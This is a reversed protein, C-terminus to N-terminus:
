FDMWTDIAENIYKKENGNLLPTNVPIMQIYNKESNIPDFRIKDQEELYPGQKIEIMETEKIM